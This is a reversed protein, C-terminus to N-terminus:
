KKAFFSCSERVILTPQIIVGQVESSGEIRSYLLRAAHEGMSRITSSVTTLKPSFITADPIDDFGVIAVDRGPTLGSEEMKMMAGIAITDNYCFVATPPNPIALIAEILKAGYERTAPSELVLSADIELGAALLASDYGKKREVWSSYGSRGGLFAIRQHGKQILHNIALQAGKENDVGVYDCNAEPINRGVLVLPIGLRQIRNISESSTGPVPSLIIGGVRYELMTSLLREQIASSDFTTGLIVTKGFKDLEQHIGILLESYFPNALEMIILGVISSDRSRLNAAGRDYVYGLQQISALVKERTTGSINLSGRVALSATARSVGAHKAVQLLTVHNQKEQM